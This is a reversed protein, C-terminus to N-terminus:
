CKMDDHADSFIDLLTQLCAVTFIKEDERADWMNLLMNVCKYLIQLMHVVTIKSCNSDVCTRLEVPNLESDLKIVIYSDHTDNM